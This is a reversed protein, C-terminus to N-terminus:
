RKASRRHCGATRSSALMLSVACAMFPGPSPVTSAIRLGGANGSPRTTSFLDAREWLAWTDGVGAEAGLFIRDTPPEPPLDGPDPSYYDEVWEESGGSVDFLGWPSVINSYAGLPIDFPQFGDDIDLGASSEGIGPLGPLTPTDSRHGRLWWGPSGPGNKNPDYHAAKLWEDLTPIWFKAGPLHTPADTPNGDPDVGWTTSDYAGTILSEMSSAKDNHLWNTYTAAEYWSLGFVPLSAADPKDSLVYRRGPGTYTRDREAGWLSPQSFSALDDSQTSFTNVYELWQGTTVELRAIRYEYHVSGRGAVKLNYDDPGDYGINGVDGITVWDFDYDPVPQALAPVAFIAASCAALIKATHVM